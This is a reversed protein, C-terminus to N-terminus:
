WETFCILILLPAMALTSHEVTGPCWSVLTDASKRPQLLMPWAGKLGVAVIGHSTGTLAPSSYPRAAAM